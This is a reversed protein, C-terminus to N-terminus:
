DVELVLWRLFVEVEAVEELTYDAEEVLGKPSAAGRVAVALGRFGGKGSLARVARFADIDTVDDGLVMARKIGCERILGEVATGKNFNVAPLANLVYKGDMLRLVQGDVEELERRIYLHAARPNPAHRYHVAFSSGKDEFYIGEGSLRTRASEKARLFPELCMKVKEPVSLVSDELRELGHNGLYILGAIGVIRQAEQASRGTVVAVLWRRSLRGLFDM